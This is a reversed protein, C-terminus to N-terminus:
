FNPSISSRSITLKLLCLSPALFDIFTQISYLIKFVILLFPVSNRVKGAHVVEGVVTAVMTVVVAMATAMQM